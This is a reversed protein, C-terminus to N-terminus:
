SPHEKISVAGRSAYPAPGVPLRRWVFQGQELWRGRRRTESTISRWVRRAHKALSPARLRFALAPDRIHCECRMSILSHSFNYRRRYRQAADELRRRSCTIFFVVEGLYSLMFKFASELDGDDSKPSAPLSSRNRYFLRTRISNTTASHSFM